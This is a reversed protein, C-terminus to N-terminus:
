PFIALMQRTRRADIASYSLLAGEPARKDPYDTLRGTPPDARRREGPAVGGAADRGGSVGIDSYGTFAVSNRVNSGPLKM